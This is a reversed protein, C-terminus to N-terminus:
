RKRHDWSTAKVVDVVVVVRGAPIWTEIGSPLEDGALRRVVQEAIRQANDDVEIFRASGTLQVARIDFYTDGEEVVGSVRSDRRLNRARATATGTMFAIAGDELTAYFVPAVHPAGDPGVTALHLIRHSALFDRIEAPTMRVDPARPNTSM